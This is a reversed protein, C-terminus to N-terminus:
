SRAGDTSGGTGMEELITWARVQFYIGWSTHDHIQTAAGRRGCSTGSGGAIWRAGKWTSCSRCGWWGRARRRM